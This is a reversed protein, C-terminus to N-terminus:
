PVKPVVPLEIAM